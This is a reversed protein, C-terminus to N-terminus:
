LGLDQDEMEMLEECYGNDFNPPVSAAPSGHVCLRQDRVTGSLQREPHAALVAMAEPSLQAATVGLATCDSDVFAQM